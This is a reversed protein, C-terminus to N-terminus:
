PFETACGVRTEPDDRLCVTNLYHHYDETHKPGLPGIEMLSVEEKAAMIQAKVTDSKKDWRPFFTSRCSEFSIMNHIM